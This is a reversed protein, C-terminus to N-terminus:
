IQKRLWGFLERRSNTITQEDRTNASPSSWNTLWKKKGGLALIFWASIEKTNIQDIIEQLQIELGRFIFAEKFQELLQCTFQWDKGLSGTHTLRYKHLWMWISTILYSFEGKKSTANLSQLDNLINEADSRSLQM